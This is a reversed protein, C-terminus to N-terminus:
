KKKAAARIVVGPKAPAAKQPAPKAVVPAAPKKPAVVIPAPKAKAAQGAAAIKARQEPQIGPKVTGPILTKKKPEKKELPFRESEEPAPLNSSVTRKYASLNTDHKEWGDSDEGREGTCIRPEPSWHIPENLVYLLREHWERGREGEKAFDDVKVLLHIYAAENADRARFTAAGVYRALGFGEFAQITVDMPQRPEDPPHIRRVHGPIPYPALHIPEDNMRSRIGWGKSNWFDVAEFATHSVAGANLAQRRKNVTLDYHPVRHKRASQFWRSDLGIRAALTHLEEETDAYLHCSCDWRWSSSKGHQMIPDVYVAM